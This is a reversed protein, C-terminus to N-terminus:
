WRYRSPIMPIKWADPFPHNSSSWRQKPAGACKLPSSNTEIQLYPHASAPPHTSPLCSKQYSQQMIHYSIIHHSIIHYSTIHHSTIHHSIIHHSIIHYSTIHYSTIHHSTVHHSIIHYSIIHYSTIHHSTIHHSIIHHSMIHYSTIHYSTIHHSIIIIIIHYSIARHCEKNKALICLSIPYRTHCCTYIQIWSRESAKISWWFNGPFELLEAMSRM